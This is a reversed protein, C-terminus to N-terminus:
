RLYQIAEQCMKCGKEFERCVSPRRDYISCKKNKDDFAICSGNSKRKMVRIGRFDHKFFDFDIMTRPVRSDVNKEEPDIEIIYKCCCGCGICSKPIAPPNKNM